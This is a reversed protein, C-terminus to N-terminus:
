ATPLTPYDVATSKNTPNADVPEQADAMTEEAMKATQVMKDEVAAGEQAPPTANEDEFEGARLREGIWKRLAEIVRINEVWEEQRKDEGESQAAPTGASGSASKEDEGRLAPDISSNGKSKPRSQDAQKPTRSGDDVDAEAMETDQSPAQKQLRGGSYRRGDLGDFGSALGSAPASTTTPYGSGLDSIGTVSPLTPYMAGGSMSGMSSRGGHSSLPSHGSSSYSSVSAPTLAPTDISASASSTLGPMTSSISSMAGASTGAQSYGMNPPSNSSRFQSQHGNGFGFDGAFQSHMGSQQVGASAASNSTEYV